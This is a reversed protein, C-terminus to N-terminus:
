EYDVNRIRKSFQILKIWYAIVALIPLLAGLALADIIWVGSLAKPWVGTFMLLTLLTVIIAGGVLYFFINSVSARRNFWAFAL